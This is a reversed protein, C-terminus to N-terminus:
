KIKILNVKFILAQNPGIGPVGHAGYALNAPIYLEWTSGVPMLQLAETWGPIVGNVPFTAPTGRKYSSDFVKGNVLSGEYDVTVTDKLTPKVGNGAELIKYQLGDKLTVVDKNNKNAELFKESAQANSAAQTQMMQQGKQQLQMQFSTLIQQIQAGSLTSAEGKLGTQLGKNYVDLDLKAQAFHVMSGAQYGLAYSLDKEQSDASAAMSQAMAGLAALTVLSLVLKKM